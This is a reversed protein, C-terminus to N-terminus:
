RVRRTTQALGELDAAAGAAGGAAVSERAMARASARFAPDGAVREVAGAVDGASPEGGLSLGAGVAAVREANLPQDRDIPTCVLPVGASLAAAVSGLGAHTVMVDADALLAGHPAREVVLVPGPARLAAADVSGGTTVVARVDLGALGDVISQLLAEHHQYTTSLGVLVRPGDGDPWPPPDGGGPAVLFGAHRLTAPPHEVPPDFSPPVVAVLRDHGAFVGPWGDAAALGFRERTANVLDALLPWLPGFWVDVFTRYVSHLLVASPVDLTEAAALAGALNADVVVLDAAVDGAARVLEDGIRHGAIAEVTLDLQEELARRHDYDPLSDFARFACGAAEARARVSPQALVAVDHGRGRLGAALALLPPVTGGADHCTLLFRM